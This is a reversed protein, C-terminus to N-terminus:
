SGHLGTSPAEPRWAACHPDSSNPRWRKTRDWVPAHSRLMAAVQQSAERERYSCQLIEEVVPRFTHGPSIPTDLLAAKDADPVRVQSLWLQRRAVVLDRWAEAWPRGKSAQYHSYPICATIYDTSCLNVDQSYSTVPRQQPNWLCLRILQHEEPDSLCFPLSQKEEDSELPSGQGPAQHGRALCRCPQGKDELPQYSVSM